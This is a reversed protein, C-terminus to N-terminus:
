KFFHRALYKEGFSSLFNGHIRLKIKKTNKLIARKIQKQLSANKKSMIFKGNIRNIIEITAEKIELSSNEVLTINNKIYSNTDQFYALNKEISDKISLKKKNLVIHKSITLDNNSFSHFYLLPVLNVFLIPKRFIRVLGDFGSGTSICFNCRSALYVDTFDDRNKTYSRDFYNKHKIDLYNKKTVGVRIVKFGKKLLFLITPKFNEPNSDRFNHYGTNHFKPDYIKELYSSDRVNLCVIKDNEKIYNKKLFKSKEPKFCNSNLVPPYANYLGYLDRDTNSFFNCSFKKKLRTARIILDSCRLLWYPLIILKEKWLNKLFNNSIGGRGLYFLDLSKIKFKKKKLIYIETNASFHGIRNAHLFGVKILFIKQIFFIFFLFVLTPILAFLVAPERFIIKFYKKM